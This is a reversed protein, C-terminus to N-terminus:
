KEKKVRPSNLTGDSFAEPMREAAQRASVPAPRPMRPGSDRATDKQSSVSPRGLRKKERARKEERRARQRAIQGQRLADIGLARDLASVVRV